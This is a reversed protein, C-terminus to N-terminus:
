FARVQRLLPWKERGRVRGKQGWQAWTQRGGRLCRGHSVKQGQAQHPCHQPGPEGLVSVGAGAVMAGELGVEEKCLQPQLLVQCLEQLVGPFRAVTVDM